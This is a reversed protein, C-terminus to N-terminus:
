SIVCRGKKRTKDYVEEADYDPEGLSDGDADDDERIILNKKRKEM